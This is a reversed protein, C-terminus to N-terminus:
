GRWDPRAGKRQLWRKCDRAILFLRVFAPSRHIEDHPEGKPRIGLFDYVELGRDACGITVPPMERRAARPPIM